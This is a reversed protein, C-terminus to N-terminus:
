ATRANALAAPVCLESVVRHIPQNGSESLPLASTGSLVAQIEALAALAIQAPTEAGLDLGLPAHLRARAQARAAPDPLLERLMRETRRRPGLVGIYAARSTLLMELAQRDTPYHHSMVVAVAARRAALQEASSAVDGLHVSAKTAFRERVALRASADCVTVGLGLTASLDVLPVADPGAGFVFLHPPPEILELLAAFRETRLPRTGPYPESLLRSASQALKAYAAADLGHAIVKGAQDLTLRAGIPICATHSEFVTALVARREASLCRELVALPAGPPDFSAREILIDLAGDCGTGLPSAEDELTADVDRDNEFRVCVPRQRALWPGKRVISAELCGGSVSGALVRGNSFLMRAGPRRYASGRVQMVTALWLPEALREHERAARCIRSHESM